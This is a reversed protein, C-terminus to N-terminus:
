TIVEKPICDYVLLIIAVNGSSLSFLHVCSIRQSRGLVILLTRKFCNCDIM